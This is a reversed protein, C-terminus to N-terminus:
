KVKHVLRFETFFFFFFNYKQECKTSMNLKSDYEWENHNVFLLWDAMLNCSCSNLMWEESVKSRALNTVLFPEEEAHLLPENQTRSNSVGPRLLFSLNRLELLVLTTSSLFYKQVETRGSQESHSCNNEINKLSMFSIWSCIRWAPLPLHLSM